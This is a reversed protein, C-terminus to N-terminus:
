ALLLTVGVGGDLPALHDAHARLLRGAVEAEGLRQEGGALALGRALRELVQEAVFPLGAEAVHLGLRAREQPLGGRFSGTPVTALTGRGISVLFAASSALVAIAHVSCYQSFSITGVIECYMPM